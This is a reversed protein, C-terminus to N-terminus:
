PIRPLLLLSISGLQTRSFFVHCWIQFTLVYWFEGDDADGFRLQKKEDDTCQNTIYDDGFDGTWEKENGWPNRVRILELNNRTSLQFFHGHM